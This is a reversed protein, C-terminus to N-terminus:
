GGRERRREDAAAALARLVDVVLDKSGDFRPDREQEEDPGDPREQAADAVPHPKLSAPPPLARCSRAKSERSGLLHSLPGGTERQRRTSAAGGTRKRSATSRSWTPRRACTASRRRTCRGSQRSP